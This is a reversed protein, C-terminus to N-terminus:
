PSPTAVPVEASLDVPVVLIKPVAVTPAEKGVEYTPTPPVERSFGLGTYVGVRVEATGSMGAIGASVSYAYEGPTLNVQLRGNAPVRYVSGQLDVVLEEGIYNDLVLAGLGAPIPQLPSRTAAPTPAAPQLSAEFFILVDRPKEIVKGEPSLRAPLTDLRAGLVYQQGWALEVLGNAGPGGPVVGTYEHRGPALAFRLQGPEGDRAAPVTHQVGDLTFSLDKGVYNLVVLGTESEQAYVALVSLALLAAVLVLTWVFSSSLRKM